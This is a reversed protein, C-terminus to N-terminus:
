AGRVANNFDRVFSEWSYYRGALERIVWPKYQNRSEVVHILVNTFEKLADENDVYKTAVGVDKIRDPEPFERLTPSVVPVGAAMAEMVAVGIGGYSYGSTAPLFYVDSAAVLRVYDRHPLLRYALVGARRLASLYPEGIGAAVMAVRGKLSRRLERWIKLLYHAGKISGVEEGFVGVYTVLVVADEPIGAARRVATKEEASMPRIENFDVAMTRVVVRADVGLVSELYHKERTNLVFFVGRVKRLYADRRLKSLEKIFDLPSRLSLGRPPLSGHHQLVVPYDIIRRIVLESNLARYEHVYPIFGRKVAGEVLEALATSVYGWRWVSRAPSLNASPALVVIVGNVTRVVAERGTGPRAAVAEYGGYKALARATRFHWGMGDEEALRGAALPPLPHHLVSVVRPM